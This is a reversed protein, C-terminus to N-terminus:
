DVPLSVSVQKYIAAKRDCHAKEAPSFTCMGKANLLFNETTIVMYSLNSTGNRDKFLRNLWGNRYVHNTRGPASIRLIHNCRGALFTMAAEPTKDGLAIIGQAFAKANSESYGYGRLTPIYVKAWSAWMNGYGKAFLGGTGSGWVGEVILHALYPDETAVASAYMSELTSSVWHYHLGGNIPPQHLTYLFQKGVPNNGASWSPYEKILAAAMQGSKTGSNVILKTFAGQFNTLTIGRCTPGGKDRPDDSWNGEFKQMVPVLNSNIWRIWNITQIKPATVGAAKLCNQHAKLAIAEADVVMQQALAKLKTDLTPDLAPPTEYAGM